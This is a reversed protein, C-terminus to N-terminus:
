VVSKRDIFAISFHNLARQKAATSERVRELNVIIENTLFQTSNHIQTAVERASSAKGKGNTKRYLEQMAQSLNQGLDELTDKTKNLALETYMYDEKAIKACQEIAVDYEPGSLLIERELQEVKRGITDPSLKTAMSIVARSLASKKENKLLRAAFSLNSQEEVNSSSRQVTFEQAEQIIRDIDGSSWNWIRAVQEVMERELPAFFGDIYAIALLQRMAENQKGPPVKCAVEQLSLYNEDQALIKEMEILTSQGITAQSSLERLGKSEESHIQRDACIIHTLLLFRYDLDGTSNADQTNREPPHQLQTM